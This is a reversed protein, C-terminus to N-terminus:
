GLNTRLWEKAEPSGLPLLPITEGLSAALKKCEKKAARESMEYYMLMTKLMGMAETTPVNMKGMLSTVILALPEPELGTTTPQTFMVPMLTAGEKGFIGMRVVSGASEDYEAETVVYEVHKNPDVSKCCANGLAIAEHMLPQFLGNGRFQQSTVAYGVFLFPNAAHVYGGSVLFLPKDGVTASIWFSCGHKEKIGESRPAENMLYSVLVEPTERVGAPFAEYYMAYTRIFADVSPGFGKSLQFPIGEKLCTAAEKCAAVIEDRIPRFIRAKRWNSKGYFDAPLVDFPNLVSIRVQGNDAGFKELRAPGETLIKRFQPAYVSPIQRDPVVLGKNETRLVLPVPTAM